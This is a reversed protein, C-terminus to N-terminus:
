GERVRVREEKREEKGILPLLLFIYTCAMRAGGMWGLPPRCHGPTLVGLVGLAGCAM